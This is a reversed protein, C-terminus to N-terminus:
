NVRAAATGRDNSALRPMTPNLQIDQPSVLNQWSWDRGETLVPLALYPCIGRANSALRPMALYLQAVQRVVLNAM